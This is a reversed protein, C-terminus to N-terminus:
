PAPAEQWRVPGGLFGEGWLTVERRSGGASWQVRLAQPSESFIDAPDAEILLETAPQLSLAATTTWTSASSQIPQLEAGGAIVRWRDIPTTSQITIRSESTQSAPATPPSSSASNQHASREAWVICAGMAAIVFLAASARTIWSTTFASGRMPHPM